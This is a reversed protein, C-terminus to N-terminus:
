SWSDFLNSVKEKLGQSETNTREIFPNDDVKGIVAEMEKNGDYVMKRFPDEYDKNRSEFTRIALKTNIIVGQNLYSYFLDKNLSLGNSEIVKSLVGFAHRAKQLPYDNGIQKYRDHDENWSKVQNECIDSKLKNLDNEPILQGGTNIWNDNKDGELRTKIEEWSKINELECFPVLM